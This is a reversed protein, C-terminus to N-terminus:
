QATHHKLRLQELQHQKKPTGFASIANETQILGYQLKTGSSLPYLGDLGVGRLDDHPSLRMTTSDLCLVAGGLAPLGAGAIMVKPAM